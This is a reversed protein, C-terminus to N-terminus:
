LFDDECGPDVDYHELHKFQTNLYTREIPAGYKNELANLFADVQAEFSVSPQLVFSPFECYHDIFVKDEGHELTIGMLIKATVEIGVNDNVKVTRTMLYPCSYKVEVEKRM